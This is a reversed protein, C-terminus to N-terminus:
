RSSVPPSVYRRTFTGCSWAGGITHAGSPLYRGDTSVKPRGGTSRLVDLVGYTACPYSPYRCLLHPLASCLWANWRHCAGLRDCRRLLRTRQTPRCASAHVPANKRVDRAFPEALLGFRHFYSHFRGHGTLFTVLAQNPPFWLPAESVLPVWKFLDTDANDQRWETEWRRLQERRFMGRVVRPTM